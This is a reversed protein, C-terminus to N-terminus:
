CAEKLAVFRRLQVREDVVVHGFGGRRERAGEFGRRAADDVFMPRRRERGIAERGRELRDDGFGALVAPDAELTIGRDDQPPDLFRRAFDPGVVGDLRRAM